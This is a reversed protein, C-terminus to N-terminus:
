PTLEGGILSTVHDAILRRARERTQDTIGLFPRAVMKVTGFQHFKGYFVGTGFELRTPSINQISFAARGAVSNMLLGTDRLIQQDFSRRARRDRPRSRPRKLPAWPEGDPDHQDKFNTKTDAILLQLIVKFPKEFDVEQLGAARAAFFEPLDDLNLNLTAM